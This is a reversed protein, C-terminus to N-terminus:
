ASSRSTNENRKSICSLSGGATARSFSSRPMVSIIPPAGALLSRHARVEDALEDPQVEGVAAVERADEVVRALDAVAGEAVGRLEEGLDRAGAGDDEVEVVDVPGVVAREVEDGVERAVAGRHRHEDEAEGAGGQEFPPGRPALAFLRVREHPELRERLLLAALEDFLNQPM